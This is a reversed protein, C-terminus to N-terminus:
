SSHMGDSGTGGNGSICCGARCELVGLGRVICEVVGLRGREWEENGDNM